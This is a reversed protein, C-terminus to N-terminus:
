CEGLWDMHMLLLFMSAQALSFAFLVCPGVCALWRYRCLAVASLGTVVVAYPALMTAWTGVSTPNLVLLPLLVPSVLLKLGFGAPGPAFPVWILGPLYLAVLNMGLFAFFWGVNNRAM